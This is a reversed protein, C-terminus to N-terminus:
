PRSPSTTRRQDRPRVDPEALEPQQLGRRARVRGERSRHESIGQAHVARGRRRRRRSGRAAAGARDRRRVFRAAAHLRDSNRRIGHRDRLRAPRRPRPAAARADGDPDGRDARLRVRAPRGARRSRERPQLPLDDDAPRESGRALPGSHEPDAVRAIGLPRVPRHPQLLPGRGLRRLAPEVEGWQSKDHRDGDFEVDLQAFTVRPLQEVPTPKRRDAGIAGLSVLLLLAARKKGTSSQLLRIRIRETPTHM